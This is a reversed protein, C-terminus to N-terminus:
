RSLKGHDRSKDVMFIVDFFEFSLCLTKFMKVNNGHETFTCAM